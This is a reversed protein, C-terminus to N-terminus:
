SAVTILADRQALPSLLWFNSPLDAWTPYVWSAGLREVRSITHSPRNATEKCCYFYYTMLVPDGVVADRAFNLTYLLANLSTYGTKGPDPIQDTKFRYPVSTPDDALTDQILALPVYTRFSCMEGKMRALLGAGQVFREYYPSGYFSEGVGLIRPADGNPSPLEIEADTANFYLEM